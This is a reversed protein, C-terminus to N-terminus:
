IETNINWLKRGAPTKKFSSKVRKCKQLSGALCLLIGKILQLRQMCLYNHIICNWLGLNFSRLTQSMGRSGCLPLDSWKKKKRFHLNLTTLVCFLPSLLCYSWISGIIWRGKGRINKHIPNPHATATNYTPPCPSGHQLDFQQVVAQPCPGARRVPCWKEGNLGMECRYYPPRGCSRERSRQSLATKESM